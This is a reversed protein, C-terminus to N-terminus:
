QTSGGEGGRLQKFINVIFDLERLSSWFLKSMSEIIEVRVGSERYFEAASEIVDRRSVPGRCGICPSNNRTCPAGCGAITLPGLCPLDRRVLCDEGYLPCEACVPIGEIGYETALNLLTCDGGKRECYWCQIRHAALIMEITARRVQRIRPTDTRVRMDESVPFACAPVLRGDALEVLCLRCSAEEFIGNLLCLTPVKFGAKRVATLITSGEDVDVPTENVYVRVM